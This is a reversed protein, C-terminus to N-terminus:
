QEPSKTKRALTRKRLVFVTNGEMKKEQIDYMVRQTHYETGFDDFIVKLNMYYYAGSKHARICGSTSSQDDVLVLYLVDDSDKDEDVAIRFCPREHLKMLKAADNNFGLKGSLHVTAKARRTSEGVDLFKLKM